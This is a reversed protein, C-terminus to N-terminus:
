QGHDLKGGDAPSVVDPKWRDWDHNSRYTDAPITGTVISKLQPRRKKLLQWFVHAVILVLFGYSGLDHLLRQRRQWNQDIDAWGLTGLSLSIGTVVMILALLFITTHFAKNWVGFKALKPLEHPLGLYYRASAVLERWDHRDFWVTRPDLHSAFGHISHSLIGVTFLVGLALHVLLWSM